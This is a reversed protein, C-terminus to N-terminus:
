VTKSKINSDMDPNEDTPIKRWTSAVENITEAMIPELLKDPCIFSYDWVSTCKNKCDCEAEVAEKEDITLISLSVAEVDSDPLYLYGNKILYKNGVSGFERRSRNTFNQLSIYDFEKEGDISTVLLLSSGYKSFIMAPLKQRSKMLHKCKRFEVIKCKVMDEKKMEFCTIPRYLNDERYLTRDALKQSIYTITKSRLIGLVYRKSIRDDKTIAKVGSITRAVVEGNTM